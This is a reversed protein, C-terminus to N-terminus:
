WYAEILPLQSCDCLSQSIIVAKVSVSQAKLFPGVRKM